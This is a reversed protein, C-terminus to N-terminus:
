GKSKALSTIWEDYFEETTKLPRTFAFKLTKAGTNQRCYFYSKSFGSKSVLDKITLLRESM